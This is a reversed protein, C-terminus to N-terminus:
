KQTAARQKAAPAGETKNLTERFWQRNAQADRQNFCFLGTQKKWDEATATHGTRANFEAMAQAVLEPSEERNTFLYQVGGFLDSWASSETYFYDSQHDARGIDFRDIVANVQADTPGDTWRVNVSSYDSKVSFKVGPFAAKLMTRINRAAFTGGNDSPGKRQLHTFEAALTELQRAHEQRKLEEASSKSAKSAAVAASLQALYPAGHSKWNLALRSGPSDSFSHPETRWARGDELMIGVKLGYLDCAEASVIAGTGAANAMDGSYNVGLGVLDAVQMGGKILVRLDVKVPQTREFPALAAPTEHPETCDPARTKLPATYSSAEKSSAQPTHAASAQQRAKLEAAIAARQHATADTLHGAADQTEILPLLQAALDAFGAALCRCFLATTHDNAAELKEADALHEAQTSAKLAYEAAARQKKSPAPASAAAERAKSEAAQAMAQLARMRDPGSAHEAYETHHGPRHFALGAGGASTRFMVASWAGTKSAAQQAGGASSARLYDAALTKLAPTYDGAQALTKLPSTYDAASSAQPTHAQAVAEAEAQPTDACVTALEGAESAPAEAAPAEAAPAAASSAQAAGIALSAAVAAAAPAAEAPAPAEAAELRDLAAAAETRELGTGMTALRQLYARIYPLATVDGARGTEIKQRRTACYAYVNTLRELDQAAIAVYVLPDACGRSFTQAAQATDAEPAAEPAEAAPAPTYAAELAAKRTEMDADTGIGNAQRWSALAEAHNQKSEIKALAQALKEPGATAIAELGSQLARAKVTEARGASLGSEMHTTIWKGDDRKAVAFGAPLGDAYDPAYLIFTHKLSGRYATGGLQDMAIALFDAPQGDQLAEAAVKILGPKWTATAAKRPKVTEAPKEGGGWIAWSKLMDAAFRQLREQQNLIKVRGGAHNATIFKPALSRTETEMLEGLAEADAQDRLLSAAAKTEESLWYTSLAADSARAAVNQAWCLGAAAQDADAATPATIAAAQIARYMTLASM